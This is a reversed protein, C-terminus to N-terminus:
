RCPARKTPRRGFHWRGNFFPFAYKPKSVYYHRRTSSRFLRARTCFNDRPCRLLHLFAIQANSDASVYAMYIYIVHINVYLTYLTLINIPKDILNSM